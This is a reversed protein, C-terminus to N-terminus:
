YFLYINKWLCFNNKKNESKLLQSPPGKAVLIFNRKFNANYAQNVFFDM